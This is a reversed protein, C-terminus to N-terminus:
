KRIGETAFTVTVEDGINELLKVMGYDSRKVVFTTEFGIRQSGKPDKGEGTKTVAITLPKTVGHMTFDGAIEFHTADMAKVSSSVFKLTAFQKADFFDPSALHADRKENRSDVSAAQITIEVKSSAPAANDWQLVGEIANFTGYFYAVNFHKVRFIASSTVPDITYSDAASAGVVVLSLAASLVLHRLRM